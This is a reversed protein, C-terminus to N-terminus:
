TTRRVPNTRVSQTTAGKNAGRVVVSAEILEGRNITELQDGSEMRSVAIDDAAARFGVSWQALSGAKLSRYINRVKPDDLFLQAEINLGKVDPKISRSHGIPSEWNHEYFIPIPGTTGAFSRATIVEYRNPGIRYPANFTTVRAVVIGDNSDASRLRVTALGTTRYRVEKIGHKKRLIARVAPDSIDLAGDELALETWTKSM